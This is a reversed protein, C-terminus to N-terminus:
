IASVVSRDYNEYGKQKYAGDRHDKRLRPVKENKSMLRMQERASDHDNDRLYARLSLIAKAHLQCVRSQSLGLVLGVEKMTLEEYYYLSLLLQQRQPLSTLAERLRARLEEEEIRAQSSKAAPDILAEELSVGQGNGSAALPADLSVLVYNAELLARQYRDMDIGLEAAIEADDPFRGLHQQLRAITEEIEAIRRRSSRPLPDLARLADIVSGRIRQRAFTEFKVGRAPDFREIAEILGIVGHSILDEYDLSASPRISLRGVIQKVLPAYHLILQERLQPDGSRAYNEWLRELKTAAAV